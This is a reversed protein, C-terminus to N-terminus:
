KKLTFPTAIGVARGATTVQPDIGRAQGTPMGPLRPVGAQTDYDIQGEFGAPATGMKLAQTRSSRLTGPSPPPTYAAM